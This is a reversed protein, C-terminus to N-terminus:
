IKIKKWPYTCLLSLVIFQFNCTRLRESTKKFFVKPVEILDSKNSEFKRHVFKEVLLKLIIIHYNQKDDNPIYKLNDAM